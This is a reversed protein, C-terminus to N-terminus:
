NKPKQVPVELSYGDAIAFGIGWEKNEKDHAPWIASITLHGMKAELDVYIPFGAERALDCFILDESARGHEFWVGERGMKNLERFVESRILMGGTGAAAVEILGGEPYKTLDIPHYYENKDKHSYAIPTFPVMRQVYLSAVIPKDHSLLRLLNDQPFTHDDDCFMLWESGIELCQQVLKNRGLIRDSTFAYQLITNVPTRMTTMTVLFLSYRGSDNCIVGVM